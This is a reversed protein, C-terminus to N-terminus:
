TVETSLVLLPHSVEDLLQGPLSCHSPWLRVSELSATDWARAVDIRATGIIYTNHLTYTEAQSTNTISM